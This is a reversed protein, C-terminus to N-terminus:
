IPNKNRNNSNNINNNNNEGGFFQKDNNLRKYSRESIVTYSKPRYLKESKMLYQQNNNGNMYSKGTKEQIKEQFQEFKSGNQGQFNKLNKVISDM